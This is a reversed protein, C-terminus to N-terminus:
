ARLHEKKILGKAVYADRKQSSLQRKELTTHDELEYILQFHESESHIGPCLNFLILAQNPNVSSTTIVIKEQTPIESIMHPLFSDPPMKWLLLDIYRAVEINPTAVLLLHGQHFHAQLTQCILTLKEKDTKAPLFRINTM